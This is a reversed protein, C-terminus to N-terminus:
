YFGLLKSERDTDNWVGKKHREKRQNEHWKKYQIAKTNSITDNEILQRSEKPPLFVPSGEVPYDFKKLTDGIVGELVRRDRNGIRTKYMDVFDTNIPRTTKSHVPAQGWDKTSQTEYHALMEERFEEGLFECIQRLVAESNACLEDYRVALYSNVDLEKAFDEIALVFDKWMMAGSYLTNPWLISESLDIAVDRGDRLIHIFQADPYLSKIEAMYFSDRPSKEGWRAKGLPRGYLRHLSGFLESFNPENMEAVVEDVNPQLPWEKITPTELADGVLARLNDEIKLDGYSYLYPYIYHFLWAPPPVALRPHADLILRLLTSGSRPSSVIFIPRENTIAM